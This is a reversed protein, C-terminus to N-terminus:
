SAMNVSEGEWWSSGFHEIHGQGCQIIATIKNSTLEVWSRAHQFYPGNRVWKTHRACHGASMLHKIYTHQVSYINPSYIFPQTPYILSPWRPPLFYWKLNTIYTTKYRKRGAEMILWQGCEAASSPTAPALCSLVYCSTYCLCTLLRWATVQYFPLWHLWSPSTLSPSTRGPSISSM